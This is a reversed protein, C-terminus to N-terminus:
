KQKTHLLACLGLGSADTHIETDAGEDFHALVPPSQMRRQLEQFADAQQTEWKFVVDCKNLYTLPEAIRSFDKVFRRYHACMGLIRRVTKEDVPQPFKATTKHSDAHVGCKSILHGLFMPEDYAFRWKEPKLILGSSKM